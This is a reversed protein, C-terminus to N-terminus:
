RRSINRALDVFTYGIKSTRYELFSNCLYFVLVLILFRWRGSTSPLDHRAILTSIGLSNALTLFFSACGPITPPYQLRTIKGFFQIINM